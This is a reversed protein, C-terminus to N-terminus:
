EGRAKKYEGLANWVGGFYGRDKDYEEVQVALADAAELMRLIAGRHTGLYALMTCDARNRVIPGDVYVVLSSDDGPGHASDMERKTAAESLRRLEALDPRM